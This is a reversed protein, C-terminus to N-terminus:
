TGFLTKVIVALTISGPDYSKIFIFNLILKVLKLNKFRILGNQYINKKTLLVAADSMLATRRGVGCRWLLALIRSCLSRYELICIYMYVYICIYMYVCVLIGTAISGSELGGSASRIPTRGTYTIGHINM